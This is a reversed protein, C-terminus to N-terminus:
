LMAERPLCANGEKIYIQDWLRVLMAVDGEATHAQGQELGLKKILPLLKWTGADPWIRRALPLTDIIGHFPWNEKADVFERQLVPVECQAAAHAVLISGALLQALKPARARFPLENAVDKDALGHIKTAYWPITVPPLFRRTYPGQVLGEGTILCVCLEVVRSGPNGTTELDIFALTRPTGYVHAPAAVPQSPTPSDAKLNNQM